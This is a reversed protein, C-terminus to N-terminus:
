LGVVKSRRELILTSRWRGDLRAIRERIGVERFGFTKHLRLTTTNEPFISAHITWIGHEESEPLVRAMLQSGVGKGLHDTDVYISLEAAGAYCERSSVPSLAVWGIVTEAEVFVLRCFRHHSADWKEWSPVVTEFTANRTKLGKAYIDLVAPADSSKMERIM